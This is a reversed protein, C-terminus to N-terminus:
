AIPALFCPEIDQTRSDYCFQNSVDNKHYGVAIFDRGSRETITVYVDNENYVFNEPLEEYHWGEVIFTYPMAANFIETKVTTDMIFKNTAFFNSIVIIIAVPILLIAVIVTILKILKINM